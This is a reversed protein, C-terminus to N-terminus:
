TRGNGDYFPHIYEFLFHTLLASYLEPMDETAALSMMSQLMSGIKQEPEVGRHAVRQAAGTIDVGGSRFLQGDPLDGASLTGAVVDDYIDRIDQLTKPLTANEDTLNLYLQAFEVFQKTSRKEKELNGEVSDLAEKVQRRTSRVNEMENTSVVEDMILNRIYAGCAIGPLSNWLQVVKRESRLAADLLQSLERPSSLFLEGTGIDVGTRFASFDELRRRAELENASKRDPSSDAHFLKDLTKYMM